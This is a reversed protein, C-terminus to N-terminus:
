RGTHSRFSELLYQFSVLGTNYLGTKPKLIKLKKTESVTKSLQVGRDGVILSGDYLIM